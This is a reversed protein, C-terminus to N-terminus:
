SSYMISMGIGTLGYGKSDDNIANGIGMGMGSAARSNLMGRANLPGLSVGASVLLEKFKGEWLVRVNCSQDMRIKVVSDNPSSTDYRPSASTAADEGAQSHNYEDDGDLGGLEPHLLPLGLKKRAWDLDGPERGCRRPKNRRWIECGAVMESEWSYANFGFRSSFALDESALISYTTSLSGTLPTLTVTLTYPIPISSTISSGTTGGTNSAATAAAAAAAAAAIPTLSPLRTFRLGTSMGVVSSIPSYYLEAGASIFSKTGCNNSSSSTGASNVGISGFASGFNNGDDRTRPLAAFNWLGRIGFLTSDTGFLGEVCYKGTDHVLRTLISTQPANKYNPIARTSCLSISLITQPSLHRLFLATLTTPAPLHLSAYLLTPSTGTRSDDYITSAIDEKGATGSLVQCLRDATSATPDYPLPEFDAPNIQKYGPVLGRLPILTSRSPTNHLPLSTFLYSISGDILGVTGKATDILSSYSNNREWGCAEAFALQIYDMFDLM